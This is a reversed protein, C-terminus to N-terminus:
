SCSTATVLIPQYLQHIFTKPKWSDPFKDQVSKDIDVGATKRPYERFDYALKAVSANDFNPSVLAKLIGQVPRANPFKNVLKTCLLERPVLVRHEQRVKAVLPGVMMALEAVYLQDRTLTNLTNSRIVMHLEDHEIVTDM